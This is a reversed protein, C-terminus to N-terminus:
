VGEGFKKWTKTSGEFYYLDGTDNALAKSYSRIYSDTPLEAIDTSLCDIEIYSNNGTGDATFHEERKNITIM